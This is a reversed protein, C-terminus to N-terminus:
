LPALGLVSKIFDMYIIPVRLHWCATVLIAINVIPTDDKIWRKKRNSATAMGAVPKRRDEDDSSDTESNQRLLEAMAEDEEEEGGTAHSSSSSADDGEDETKGIGEGNMPKVDARAEKEPDDQAQSQLFPEVPPSQMLSLHM